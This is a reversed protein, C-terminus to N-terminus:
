IENIAPKLFGHPRANGAGVIIRCGRLRSRRCSGKCLPALTATRFNDPAIAEGTYPSTPRVRLPRAPPTARNLDTRLACVDGIVQETSATNVAAAIGSLRDCCILSAVAGCPPCCLLRKARIKRVNQLFTNVFTERKHIKLTNPCAVCNLFILVSGSGGCRLKLLVHPSRILVTSFILKMM